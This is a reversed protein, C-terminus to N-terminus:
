CFLSPICGASSKMNCGEPGPTYPKAYTGYSPPPQNWSLVSVPETYCSRLLGRWPCQHSCIQYFQHNNFGMVLTLSEKRWVRLPPLISEVESGM